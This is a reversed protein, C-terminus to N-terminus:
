TKQKKNSKLKCTFREKHKIKVFLYACPDKKRPILIEFLFSRM